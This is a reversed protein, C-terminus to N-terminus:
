QVANLLLRWGFKAALAWRSPRGASCLHRGRNLAAVASNSFSNSNSDIVSQLISNWRDILRSSFFCHRLDLHCREKAIKATVVPPSLQSSTFFRHRLSKWFIPVIKDKRSHGHKLHELRKEYLLKKLGPIMSTFRHQVRELLAKDRM